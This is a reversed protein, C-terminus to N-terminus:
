YSKIYFATSSVFFKIVIKVIEILLDLTSYIEVQWQCVGETCCHKDAEQAIKDNNRSTINKEVPLNQILGLQWIDVADNKRPPHYM